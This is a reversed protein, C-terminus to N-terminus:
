ARRWSLTSIVGCMPPADLSAMRAVSSISALSITRRKLGPPPAAYRAYAPTLIEFEDHATKDYAKPSVGRRRYPLGGEIGQPVPARIRPPDPFAGGPQTEETM